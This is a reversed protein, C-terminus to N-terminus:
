GRENLWTDVLNVSDLHTAEYAFGHATEDLLEYTVEPSSVYRRAQVELAPPPFLKDEAGAIILVPVTTMSVGVANAAIGDQFSLLDGCPDPQPAPVADRVKQEASHFLIGEVDNGFPTYHEPAGPTSFQGAASMICRADTEAVQAAAFESTTQDGWGFNILGDADDFAYALITATLGGASHGAVYVTEFTPARGSDAEYDGNKLAQVVQNATDAQSGFCTALGPPKDSEGYGLRDITVSVHSKRAMQNAYDYGKVGTFNWYFEGQTVAHLYLTAADANALTSKLAVIHGRITYDEGDAMAGCVVPTRNTNQVAFSVPISMVADASPAAADRSAAQAAAPLALVSAMAACVLIKTSTSRLAAAGVVRASRAM